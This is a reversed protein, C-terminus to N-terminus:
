RLKSREIQAWPSSNATSSCCSSPSASIRETCKTVCLMPPMTARVASAWRTGCLIRRITISAGGLRPDHAPVKKPGSNSLIQM